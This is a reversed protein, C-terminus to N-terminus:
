SVLPPQTGQWNVQETSTMMKPLNQLVTQEDRFHPMIVGQLPNNCLKFSFTHMFSLLIVLIIISNYVLQCTAIVGFTLYIM